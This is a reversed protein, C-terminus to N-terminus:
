EIGDLKKLNEIEEILPAIAKNMGDITPATDFVLSKFDGLKDDFKTELQAIVDYTVSTEHLWLKAQGLENRVEAIANELAEKTVVNDPYVIPNDRNTDQYGKDLYEIGYRILQNITETVEPKHSIHHIKAKFRKLAIDQVTELLSEDIRLDVKTTGM